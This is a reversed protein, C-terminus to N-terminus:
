GNPIFRKFVPIMLEVAKNAAYIDAFDRGFNGGKM